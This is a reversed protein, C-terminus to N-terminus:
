NATESTDDPEKGLDEADFGNMKRIKDVLPAVIHAPVEHWQKWTMVTERTEPDRVCMELFNVDFRGPPMMGKKDRGEAFGKARELHTLGVLLFDMGEITVSEEKVKFALLKERLSM